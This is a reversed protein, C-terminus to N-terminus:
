PDVLRGSTEFRRFNSYTATSFIDEEIGGSRGGPYPVRLEYRETMTRPVWVDLGADPSYTMEVRADVTNDTLRLRARVLANNAVAIWVDGSALANRDNVAILTPSKREMYSLKWTPVGAVNEQGALRFLFRSQLRQHLFQLVLTPDGFNRIVSGVNFRASEDRLLREKEASDATASALLRDLRSASDAVPMDDVTRFSRATVLLSNESPWMFLIDSVITRRLTPRSGIPVPRVQQVYHEEGVILAFDREFREAYVGAGRLLDALAPTDRQGEPVAIQALVAAIMLVTFRKM